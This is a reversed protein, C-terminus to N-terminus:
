PKFYPLLKQFLNALPLGVVNFYCGHIESVFVASSDQIGYSGAKDFPPDVEIYRDIEWSDLDRFKVDTAEVDITWINGPKEIIALGTFVTHVRGSLMTLMRVAEDRNSPKGLIHQDLVVVTDAGIIIGESIQEAVAAAKQRANGVVVDHPNESHFTEDVHSVCVEFQTVIKKLLEIRRPSKSALVLRRQSTELLPM